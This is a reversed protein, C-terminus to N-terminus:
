TLLHGRTIDFYSNFIAMSLSNECEAHRNEMIINTEWLTTKKLLLLYYQCNNVDFKRFDYLNALQVYYQLMNDRTLFDNQPLDRSGNMIAHSVIGILHFGRCDNNGETIM